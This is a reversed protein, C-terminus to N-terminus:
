CILLGVAIWGQLFFQEPKENDYIKINVIDIM